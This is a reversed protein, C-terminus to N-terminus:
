FCIFNSKGSLILQVFIFTLFYNMIVWLFISILIQKRTWSVSYVNFKGGGATETNQPKNKLEGEAAM